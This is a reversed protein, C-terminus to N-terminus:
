FHHNGAVLGDANNWWRTGKNGDDQWRLAGFPVEGDELALPPPPPPPMPPLPHCPKGANRPPEGRVAPPLSPRPFHEETAGRTHFHRNINIMNWYWLSSVVSWLYPFMNKKIHVIPILTKKQLGEFIFFLCEAKVFFMGSFERCVVWVDSFFISLHFIFMMQVMLRQSEQPLNWRNIKWHDSHPHKWFYHYGLISPEYRFVKNFHIIQPYWWKLFCGHIGREKKRVDTTKQWGLSQWPESPNVMLADSPPNSVDESFIM